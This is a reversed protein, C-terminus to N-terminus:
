SLINKEYYHVLEAPSAGMWKKLHIVSFHFQLKTTGLERYKRASTVVSEPLVSFSFNKYIRDIFECDEYVVYSEDFGNLTDFCSKKIFLSQDGGRCIRWNYRTFWQLSLLLPHNTDFKLRFCGADTSNIASVISTDYSFPPLTDAHLFYLIEGKAIKAGQNMQKARGKESEILFVPIQIATEKVKSVTTDTSGGDVIIIEMICDSICREEIVKLISQIYREENLVPIIISITDKKM